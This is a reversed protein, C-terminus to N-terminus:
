RLFMEVPIPKRKLGNGSGASCESDGASSGASSWASSHGSNSASASSGSWGALSVNSSSTSARRRPSRQTTYAAYLAPSPTSPMPPTAPARKAPLASYPAPYAAWQASAPTAPVAPVAPPPHVVLVDAVTLKKGKRAPRKAPSFATPPASFKPKTPSKLANAAGRALYRRAFAFTKPSAPSRLAHASHMSSLTSSSWRSRLAPQVTTRQEDDVTVSPPSLPSLPFTWQEGEGDQVAALFEPVTSTIPSSSSSPAPAVLPSLPVDEYQQQEFDLDEWGDADGDVDEPVCSIRPPPPPPSLLADLRSSGSSSTPSSSPSYSSYDGSRTDTPVPTRPPPRPRSFNPVKASASSSSTSRSLSHSIVIPPPPPARLPITIARSLRVSARHTSIVASERRAARTAAASSEVSCSSISDLSPFSPPLPPALTVFSRAHAAYYEDDDQWAAEDEVLKEVEANSIPSTAPTTPAHSSTPSTNGSSSERSDFSESGSSAGSSDEEEYVDFAPIPPRPFDLITSSDEAETDSVAALTLRWDDNVVLGPATFSPIRLDSVGRRRKVKVSKSECLDMAASTTLDMFVPEEVISTLPASAVSKRIRSQRKLYSSLSM